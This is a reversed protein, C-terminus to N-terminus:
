RWCLIYEWKFPNASGSKCVRVFEDWGADCGAGDGCVEEHHSRWDHIIKVRFDVICMVADVQTISYYCCLTLLVPSKRAMHAINIQVFYNYCVKSKEHGFDSDIRM